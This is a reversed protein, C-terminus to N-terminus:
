KGRELKKMRENYPELGISHRRKDVEKKDFLEPEHWECYYSEMCDITSFKNQFDIIFAYHGSKINGKQLERRLLSNYSCDRPYSYYHLLILKAKNNEFAFNYKNQSGM